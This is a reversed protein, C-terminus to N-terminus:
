IEYEERSSEREPKCLFYCMVILDKFVDQLGLVIESASHGIDSTLIARNGEKYCMVEESAV